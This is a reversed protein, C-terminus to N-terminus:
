CCVAVLLLMRGNATLALVGDNCSSPAFNADSEVTGGTGFSRDLQGSRLFRALFPQAFPLGDGTCGNVLYDVPRTSWLRTQRVRNASRTSSMGTTASPPILVM